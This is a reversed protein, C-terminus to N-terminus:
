TETGRRYSKILREIVEYYPERRHIKLEDLEKKVKETVAILKLEMKIMM